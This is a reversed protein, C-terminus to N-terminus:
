DGEIDNPKVPELDKAKICIRDGLVDDWEQYELYPNPPITVDLGMLVAMIEVQDAFGMKSGMANRGDMINRRCFPCTSSMIEAGVEEGDSVRASGMGLALDPVGAKIGGGAGCCRQLERSRPMEVYEAGPFAHYVDRPAEFTWDKGAHHLIHRGSHCPDHFTLKKNLSYKWEVEGNQIKERLYVSLPVNKYPIYGEYWRPWDITATRLCGACAYLVTEVGRDKLADVNHNAHERMIDRQGTRVLVSACCWEDEGLLCFPINLANLIRVTAVGLTQQRYAATCGPFYAIKASELFEADPPVFCLRDKPDGGYPNRNKYLLQPFFKQKEYPGNERKVLNARISEWLEVTNIGVPCVSGCVGCTSCMYFDYTFKSVEDENLKKPGFLKARLGHQSGMLERFKRIKYPPTIEPKDNYINYTPCWKMCEGCNTCADVEMFQTSTLFGMALPKPKDETKKENEADAM